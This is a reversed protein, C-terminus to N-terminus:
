GELSAQLKEILESLEKKVEETQEKEVQESVKKLDSIIFRLFASFQKDTMGM